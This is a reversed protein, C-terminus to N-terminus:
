APIGKYADRLAMAAAYVVDHAGEAGASRMATKIRHMVLAPTHTDTGAPTGALPSGSALTHAGAVMQGAAARLAGLAEIAADNNNGAFASEFAGLTAGVDLGASAHTLPTAHALTLTGLDLVGGGGGPAVNAYSVGVQARPADARGAGAGRSTTGFGLTGMKQELAMMAKTAGLQELLGRLVDLAKQAAGDAPLAESDGMYEEAHKLLQAANGVYAYAGGRGSSRASETIDAVLMGVVAYMRASTDDVDVDAPTEKAGTLLSRTWSLLGGTSARAYKSWAHVMGVALVAAYTDPIVCANPVASAGYAYANYVPPADGGRMTRVAGVFAHAWNVVEGAVLTAVERQVCAAISDAYIGPLPLVCPPPTFDFGFLRKYESEPSAHSRAPYYAMVNSPTYRSSASVGSSGGQWGAAGPGPLYALPASLWLAGTEKNRHLGVAAAEGEEGCAIYYDRLVSWMRGPELLSPPLAGPPDSRLRVVLPAGKLPGDAGNKNNHLVSLAATVRAWHEQNAGRFGEIDARLRTTDPVVSNRAYPGIEPAVVGGARLLANDTHMFVPSANQVDLVAACINAAIADAGASDLDATRRLFAIWSAYLPWAVGILQMYTDDTRKSRALEDRLMRVTGYCLFWTPAWPTDADCAGPLVDGAAGREVVGKLTTTLASALAEVASWASVHRKFMSVGSPNRTNFDPSVCTDTHRAGKPDAGPECETMWVGSAYHVVAHVDEMSSADAICGALACTYMDPRVLAVPPLTVEGPDAGRMTARAIPAYTHVSFPMPYLTPDMKSLASTVLVRLDDRGTAGAMGSALVYKLESLGVAVDISKDKTPWREDPTVPAVGCLSLSLMQAVPVVVRAFGDRHPLFWAARSAPSDTHLMYLLMGAYFYVLTWVFRADLTLFFERWITTGDNNAVLTAGKAGDSEVLVRMGTDQVFTLVNMRATAVALRTAVRFKHESSRARLAAAAEYGPGGERLGLLLVAYADAYMREITMYTADERAPAPALDGRQKSRMVDNGLSGSRVFASALATMRAFEEDDDDDGGTQRMCAGVASDVVQRQPTSMNSYEEDVANITKAISLVDSGWKCDRPCVGSKRPAAM